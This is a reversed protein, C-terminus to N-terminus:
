NQLDIKDLIAANYADVPKASPYFPKAAEAGETFAILVGDGAALDDYVVLEESDLVAGEGDRLNSEGLPVVIRWSSGRLSEHLKSLTLTGIVKGIRM